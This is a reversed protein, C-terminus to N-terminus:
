LGTAALLGQLQPVLNFWGITGTGYNLVGTSFGSVNLPPFGDFSYSKAVGTNFWGSVAGSFDTGGIATNSVGSVGGYPKLFTEGGFGVTNGYGSVFNGINNYGSHAQNAVIADSINFPVGAGLYGTNFAGGNGFGTNNPGGDGFGTNIPGGNWMGTNLSGGNGDGTNFSGGNNWGTNFLGSNGLGWDAFGSNYAGIDGAGSNGFGISNLGGLPNTGSNNFGINGAGSNFFGYNGSGSNGFGVNGM